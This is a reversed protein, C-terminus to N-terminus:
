AEADVLRSPWAVTPARTEELARVFRLQAEAPADMSVAVRAVFMSVPTGADDHGEWVRCPQGNFEIIQDTPEITIKM